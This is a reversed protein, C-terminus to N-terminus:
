WLQLCGMGGGGRRKKRNNLLMTRRKRGREKAVAKEVKRREREELKRQRRKWKTTRARAPTTGLGSAVPASVLPTVDVLKRPCADNPACCSFVVEQATM